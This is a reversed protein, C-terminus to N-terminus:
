LKLLTHLSVFDLTAIHKSSCIWCWCCDLGWVFMFFGLWDCLTLAPV